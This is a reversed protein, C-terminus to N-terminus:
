ARRNAVMEVLFASKSGTVRCILKIWDFRQHLDAPESLCHRAPWDCQILDHALTTGANAKM